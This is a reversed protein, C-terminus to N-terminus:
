DAADNKSVRAWVRAWVPNKEGHCEGTETAGPRAPNEIDCRKNNQHRALASHSPSEAGITAALFGSGCGIVSVLRAVAVKQRIRPSNKENKM